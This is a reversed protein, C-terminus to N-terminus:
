LFFYSTYEVYMIGQKTFLYMIWSDLITYRKQHRDAAIWLVLPRLLDIM